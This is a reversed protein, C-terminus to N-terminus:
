LPKVPAVPAVPALPAVPEVPAVPVAPLDILILPVFASTAESGVRALPLLVDPSAQITNVFKCKYTQSPETQISAPCNWPGVPAVPGAVIETPVTDEVPGVPTVDTVFEPVLVTPTKSKTKCCPGVPTVPGVPAVGVTATPVTVVVPGVPFESTM